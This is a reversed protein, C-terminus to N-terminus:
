APDKRNFHHIRPSDCAFLTYDEYFETRGRQQTARHEAVRGWARASAEDAWESVAIVEGDEAIYSKFSLFGPQGQALGLMRDAEADYEAYDIDARKRNRFVVLFM